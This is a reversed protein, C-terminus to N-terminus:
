VFEVKEGLFTGKAKIAICNPADYIPIADYEKGAIRYKSYPDKSLSDLKLVAYEKVHFESIVMSM